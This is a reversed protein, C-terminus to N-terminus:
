HTQITFRREAEAVEEKTRQYVQVRPDGARFEFAEAGSTDYRVTQTTSDGEGKGSGAKNRRKTRGMVREVQEGTEVENKDM